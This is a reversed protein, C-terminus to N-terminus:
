EDFPLLLTIDLMSEVAILLRATRVWTAVQLVATRYKETATKIAAQDHERQAALSELQAQLTEITPGNTTGQSPTQQEQPNPSPEPM